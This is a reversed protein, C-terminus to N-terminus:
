VGAADRAAAPCYYLDENLQRQWGTPRNGEHIAERAENPPIKRGRTLVPASVNPCDVVYLHSESVSDNHSFRFESKRVMQAPALVIDPDRQISHGSWVDVPGKKMGTLDSTGEMGPEYVERRHLSAQEAQEKGGDERDRDHGRRHGESLFM